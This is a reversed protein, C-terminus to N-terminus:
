PLPEGRVPHAHRDAPVGPEARSGRRGRGPCDLGDAPQREYGADFIAAHTTDPASGDGPTYIPLPNSTGKLTLVGAASIARGNTGGGTPIEKRAYGTNSQESTGNSSLGVYLAADEMDNNMVFAKGADTLAM